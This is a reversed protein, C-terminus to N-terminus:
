RRDFLMGLFAFIAGVTVILMVLTLFFCLEPYAWVQADLWNEAGSHSSYPSKALEVAHAFIKNVSSILGVTLGGLFVISITAFVIKWARRKEVSKSTTLTSVTTSRESPSKLMQRCQGPFLVM